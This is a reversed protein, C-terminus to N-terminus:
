RSVHNLERRKRIQLKKLLAEKMLCIDLEREDLPEPLKGGMGKFWREFRTDRPDKPYPEYNYIDCFFSALLKDIDQITM